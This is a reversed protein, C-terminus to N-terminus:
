AATEQRATRNQRLISEYWDLEREVFGARDFRWRGELAAAALAALRSRDAHLAALAESVVPVTAASLVIGDIGHRVVDRCGRSDVTVVPTGVALSEMAGVPMGERTSPLLCVDAAALVAPVDTQWGVDVVRPDSRLAAVEAAELGSGHAADASGVLLLRADPLAARRFGRVALAFGKFATRRGVYAVVFAERPLGLRRRMDARHVSPFRDPDCAALDCGVGWGPTLRIREAPMRWALAEADERNLVCAVSLQRAAWAEASGLWRSAADSAHGLHMGHFTGLWAREDRASLRRVVATLVTALSFHAHVIAPQWDSVAHRLARVARIMGFAGGHRHGPLSLREVREPWAGSAGPLDPGSAVAVEGGRGIWGEAVERLFVLFSSGSPVVLLLKRSPTM